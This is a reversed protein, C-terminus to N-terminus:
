KWVIWIFLAGAATAALTFPLGIKVFTLFSIDHGEKKLIGVSVINAAAGIPTINGGLCAGILLGYMMLFESGNLNSGLAYTVPIMVTVYPVNDIFASVVMSFIVIFLYNALVDSGLFDKLMSTMADILGVYEFASVIVFIGALFFTTDFEFNKVLDTTISKGFKAYSWIATVVAIVTCITGSLWKFEPDVLPALALLLIMILLMITPVWSLIPQIKHHEVPQRYHRFFMYLVILSVIAAFEVAFFLGPKGYYVFFDNFNMSMFGALIMAPPDGILIAMGQLNSSVAVGIMVPVPSAKLKRVMELAIPAVILVVAVNEVFVSLFSSMMCVRLMAIGTNKSRGVLYDALYAPVKSYAFFEALLLTGAFIGIVNWNVYTILQVPKLIGFLFVTIIGTWVAASRFKKFFILYLYVIIFVILVIAKDNM